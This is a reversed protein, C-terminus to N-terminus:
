RPYRLLVEWIFLLARSQEGRSRIIFFSRPLIAALPSIKARKRCIKKSKSLKNRDSGTAGPKDSVLAFSAQGKNQKRFTRQPRRAKLRRRWWYFQSKQLGRQRCFELISIGSRTAEHITREWHRAKEDDPKKGNM